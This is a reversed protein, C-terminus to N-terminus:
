ARIAAAAIEVPDRGGTVQPDVIVYLGRVRRARGERLAAALMDALRGTTDVLERHLEGGVPNAAGAGGLTDLLGRCATVAVAAEELTFADGPPGDTADSGGALGRALTRLRQLPPAGGAAEPCRRTVEALVQVLPSLGADHTSAPDM